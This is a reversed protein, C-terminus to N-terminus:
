KTVERPFPSLFDFTQIKLTSTRWFFTEIFALFRGDSSM